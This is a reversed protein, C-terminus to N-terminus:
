LEETSKMLEALKHQCYQGCVGTGKFCMVKIENNCIVCHVKTALTHIPLGQEMRIQAPTKLHNLPLPLESM